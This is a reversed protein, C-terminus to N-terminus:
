QAAGPSGPADANREEERALRLAHLHAIGLEHAIHMLAEEQAQTIQGDKLAAHVAHHRAARGRERHGGVLAM